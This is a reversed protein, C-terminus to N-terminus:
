IVLVKLVYISMKVFYEAAVAGKEVERSLQEVGLNTKSSWDIFELFFFM